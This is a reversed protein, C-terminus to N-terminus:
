IQAAQASMKQKKRLVYAHQQANKLIRRQEREENSMAALRELKKAYSRASKLRKEEPTRRREYERLTSAKRQIRDEESILELGSWDFSAIVDQGIEFETVMRYQFQTEKYYAEAADAKAQVSDSSAFRSPKVEEVFETGNKYLIVFDPNYKKVIGDYAYPIRDKCRDFLVVSEDNEFQHLRIYEYRSNTPIWKNMKKSHFAGQMGRVPSAICRRAAQLSLSDRLDRVVGADKVIKYITASAVGTKATIERRSIGELYLEVVSNKVTKAHSVRRVTLEGACKLWRNIVAASVGISQAISQM